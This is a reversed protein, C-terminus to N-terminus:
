LFFVQFSDLDKKQLMTSKQQKGPLAADAGLKFGQVTIRVKQSMIIEMAVM